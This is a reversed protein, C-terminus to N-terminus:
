YGSLLARVRGLAGPGASSSLRGPDAPQRGWLLLVRAAPDTEIVAPGEPPELTISAEDRKAELVVDERGEARIRASIREGAGLRAQGAKLLPRGVAVVSHSTMWPQELQFRSLADDGTLDWRHLILEERMHEGFWAVKMERGTWPVVAETDVHSAAELIEALRAVRADLAELLEADALERYRPEREEFTRTPPVEDGQLHAGLIRALEDANGANHACVDRVTWAACATGQEPQRATVAERFAPWEPIVEDVGSQDM